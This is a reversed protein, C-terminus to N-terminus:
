KLIPDNLTMPMPAMGKRYLGCQNGTLKGSYSGKVTEL